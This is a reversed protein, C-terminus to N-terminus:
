FHRVAANDDVSRALKLHRADQEICFYPTEFLEPVLIIQAGRGAAERVLEEAKAINAAGDWGCSMQIAALAVPRPAHHFHEPQQPMPSREKVVSPPRSAFRSR